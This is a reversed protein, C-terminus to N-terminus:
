KKIKPNKYKKYNKKPPPWFSIEAGAYSKQFIIKDNNKFGEKYIEAFKRKKSLFEPLREFQALGLSAELNTM